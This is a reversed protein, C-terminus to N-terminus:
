EQIRSADVEGLEGLLSRVLPVVVGGQAVVTSHFITWPSNMWRNSVVLCGIDFAWAYLQEMPPGGYSPYTIDSILLDARILVYLDKYVIDRATGSRDGGLLVPLVHDLPHILLEPLQLLEGCAEYRKQALSDNQRLIRAFQENALHERISRYPNYAVHSTLSKELDEIWLPPAVQDYIGQIPFSGYVLGSSKKQPPLTIPIARDLKPLM